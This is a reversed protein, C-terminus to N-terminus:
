KRLNMQRQLIKISDELKKFEFESKEKMQLKEEKQNKHLALLITKQKELLAEQKQIKRKLNTVNPVKNNVTHEQPEVVISSYYNHSTNWRSPTTMVHMAGGPMRVNPNSKSVYPKIHYEKITPSKRVLQINPDSLFKEHVITKEVIQKQPQSGCSSLFLNFIVSATTFIFLKM